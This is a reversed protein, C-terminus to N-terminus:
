GEGLSEPGCPRRGEPIRGHLGDRGDSPREMASIMAEYTSLKYAARAQRLGYMTQKPRRVSPPIARQCLPKTRAHCYPATRSSTAPAATASGTVTSIHPGRRIARIRRCTRPWGRIRVDPMRLDADHDARGTTLARQVRLLEHGRDDRSRRGIQDPEVTILHTKPRGRPANRGNSSRMARSAM